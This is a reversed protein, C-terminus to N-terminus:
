SFSSINKHLLTRAILYSVNWRLKRWCILHDFNGRWVYQGTKKKRAEAKWRKEYSSKWLKHYLELQSVFFFGTLMDRGFNIPPRPIVAYTDFLSFRIEEHSLMLKGCKKEEKLSSAITLPFVFEMRFRIRENHLNNNLLIPQSNIRSGQVNIACMEVRAIKIATMRCFVFRFFHPLKGYKWCDSRNKLFFISRNSSKQTFSHSPFSRRFKECLFHFSM